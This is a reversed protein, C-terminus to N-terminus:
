DEWRELSPRKRGVSCTYKGEFSRVKRGTRRRPSLRMYSVCSSADLLMELEARGAEM